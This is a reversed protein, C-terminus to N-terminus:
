IIQYLIGISKLKNKKNPETDTFKFDPPYYQQINFKADVNNNLADEIFIVRPNYTSPEFSCLSNKVCTKKMVEKSCLTNYKTFQYMENSYETAINNLIQEVYNYLLTKKKMNTFVSNTLIKTINQKILIFPYINKNLLKSFEFIIQKYIDNDKKMKNVIIIRDDTNVLEYNDNNEINTETLIQIYEFYENLYKNNIQSSINAQIDNINLEFGNSLILKNYIKNNDM